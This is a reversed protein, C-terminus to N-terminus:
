AAAMSFSKQFSFIVSWLLASRAGLETKTAQCSPRTRSPIGFPHRFLVTIAFWDALGGIIGAEAGARVLQVLLGPSAELHTAIAIGIMLALLGTALLRNRRLARRVQVEDAPSLQPNSPRRRFDTLGRGQLERV